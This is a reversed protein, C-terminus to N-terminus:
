RDTVVPASEEHKRVVVFRAATEVVSETDPIEHGPVVLFCMPDARVGAYEETTVSVPDACEALGCECVFEVVGGTIELRELDANLRDNIARFRAENEAIRRTRDDM